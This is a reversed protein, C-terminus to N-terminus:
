RRYVSTQKSAEALRAEKKEWQALMNETLWRKVDLCTKFDVPDKVHVFSTITRGKLASGPKM